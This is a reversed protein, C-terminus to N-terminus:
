EKCVKRIIEYVWSPVEATETLITAKERQSLRGRLVSIISEDVNDKGLARIAEVVMISIDSMHSIERNAKHKFSVTINEWRFDRYPGDSVYTWVVPVQTSLGLKNLAVDGCPSITWHYKRALAYAVKEPDVPIISDLVKSYKPKEYVGDIVRRIVGEEAQRGLLKRATALSTIDSFDSTFIIEGDSLCDIRKKIEDYIKESMILGRKDRNNYLKRSLRAIFFDYEIIGYFATHLCVAKPSIIRKFQTM